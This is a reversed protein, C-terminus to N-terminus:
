APTTATGTLGGRPVRTGSAVRAITASLSGVATSVTAEDAEAPLIFMCEYERLM